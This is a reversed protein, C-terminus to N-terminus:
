RNEGDLHHAIPTPIAPMNTFQSDKIKLIQHKSVAPMMLPGYCFHIGHNKAFIFDHVLSIGRFYLHFKYTHQLSLIKQFLAMQEKSQYTSRIFSQSLHVGDFAFENLWDFEEKLGAFEFLEIELGLLKLKELEPKLVSLSEIHGVAIALLGVPLESERIWQCILPFTMASTMHESHLPIICRIARNHCHWYNLNGICERFLSELDKKECNLFSQCFVGKFLHTQTDFFPELNIQQIQLSPDTESPEKLTTHTKAWDKLISYIKWRTTKM